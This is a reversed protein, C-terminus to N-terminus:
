FFPLVPHGSIPPTPPSAAARTVVFAARWAPLGIFPRVASLLHTSQIAVTTEEKSKQRVTRAKGRLAREVALRSAWTCSGAPCAKRPFRHAAPETLM